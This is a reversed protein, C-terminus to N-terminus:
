LGEGISERGGASPHRGSVVPRGASVEAGVPPDVLRYGGITKGGRQFYLRARRRAAELKFEKSYRKSKAM